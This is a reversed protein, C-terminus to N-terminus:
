ALLLNDFYDAVRCHKTIVIRPSLWRGHVLLQYVKDSATALRTCRKTIEENDATRETM